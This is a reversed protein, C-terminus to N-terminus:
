VGYTVVYFDILRYIAKPIDCSKEGLDIVKLDYESFIGLEAFVDTLYHGKDPAAKELAKEVAEKSIVEHAVAIKVEKSELAMELAEGGRMGLEYLIVFKRLVVGILEEKGTRNNM